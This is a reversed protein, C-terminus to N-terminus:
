NLAEKLAAVNQEMLSLYTAGNEFDDKSVNHCSHLLLKKAGTAECICDTMKENSLETHFVVPIQEENIKDILFSLTKASAESESSCGPFAAYYDLGYADAFYRFPFRDGFVITHRSANATVDSFEEDLSTLSALYSATNAQYDDANEPDLRCLADCLKQVIRMANKPSTWVHEDQEGHSEDEHDHSDEDHDHSDEDHDHSDEDHDTDEDEHDHAHGHTEM